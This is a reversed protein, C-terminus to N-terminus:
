QAGLVIQFSIKPKKYFISIKGKFMRVLSEAMSLGIGYGKKESNHSKDERYFRDFFRKYDVGDGALYDNSVTLIANRGRKELSLEVVGGEDCYKVANDLLINVLEYVGKEDGNIHIDEEVNAELSLGKTDAITKYNAVSKKAEESFNVDTLVIDEREELRSLVVLQSILDSMRNVQNVTSETWESKGCTMEIVETNASIVALPTKLEHSANTIFQKQAESNKVYPSVIRRSAVSVILVTLLLSLVGIYVSFKAVFYVASLYRTCDMITLQTYENRSVRLYAYDLGKYSFLGRNKKPNFAPEIFEEFDEENIAAIHDDNIALFTGNADYTMFLYRTEYQTEATINGDIKGGTQIESDPNGARESIFELTQNIDSIANKYTVYNVTGLVLVLVILVSLTSIAIFKLKLKRYM